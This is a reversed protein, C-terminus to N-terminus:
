KLEIARNKCERKAQRIKDMIPDNEVWNLKIGEGYFANPLLSLLKTCNNCQQCKEKDIVLVM